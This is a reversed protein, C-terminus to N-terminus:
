AQAAHCSPCTPKTSAEILEPTHIQTGHIYASGPKAAVNRLSDSGFPSQRLSLGLSASDVGGDRM